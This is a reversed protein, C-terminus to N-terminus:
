TNFIDMLLAVFDVDEKLYDRGAVSRSRKKRLLDTLKPHSAKVAAGICKELQRDISKLGNLKGEAKKISNRVKQFDFSNRATLSGNFHFFLHCLNTTM